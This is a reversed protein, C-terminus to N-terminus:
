PPGAARQETRARREVVWGAIQTRSTFGFRALVRGVHSEVTRRSLVLRAAIEANSLGEAVHECVELERATMSEASDLEVIPGSEQLAYDISEAPRMGAGKRFAAHFAREGLRGAHRVCEDHFRGLGPLSALRMGIQQWIAEAAGLLTAAREYHQEEAAIWAMVEICEGIGLQDDLSRKIRLSEGLLQGAATPDGQRWYRLAAVWLSYAWVWADGHEQVMERCQDHSRAASALDGALVAALGHLFLTFAEGDPDTTSAFLAVAEGFRTMASAQDGAFLAALGQAQRIRALAATDGTQMAIAVGEDAMRAAAERDGLLMSLSAAAHLARARAAPDGGLRSLALELSRRGEDLFGRSLWYFYLSGAMRLAISSADTDAGEPEGSVFDLAARLNAHDRRLRDIREVQNPGLWSGLTRSVLDAYFDRHRLRWLELRGQARLQELGFERITELLRYRVQGAHEERALVSKAVLAGLLDLIAAVPLEPDACVGEAAALGIGGSFVSLRGWLLQEEPTCLEYSWAVTSRLTRQRAPADRRGVSLLRYRDVLKDVIQEVSLVQLRVAALEIALPLGELAHCLEAVATHNGETLTFGPLVSTARNLFLAVSDYRALAAVSPCGPDPVPLPQLGFTSEGSIGLPERSTALIRIGPAAQLLCSALGAVAELIHECNDLVLLMERDALHRTLADVPSDRPLERLGVSEAVTRVLHADDALEALRVFCVGARFARQSDQLLRAAFRTKGVGGVGVVTVLRTLAFLGRAEALERRRGVFRNVEVPVTGLTRAAAEM